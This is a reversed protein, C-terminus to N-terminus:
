GTGTSHRIAITPKQVCTAVSNGGAQLATASRAPLNQESPDCHQAATIIEVAQHFSTGEVQVFFDITNGASVIMLTQRAWISGEKKGMDGTEGYGSCVVREAEEGRRLQDAKRRNDTEM